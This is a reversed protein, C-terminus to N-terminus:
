LKDVFEKIKIAIECKPPCYKKFKFSEADKICSLINKLDRCWILYKEESLAKLIEEQHTDTRDLNAASIIKKGKKLLEYTTGAGGHAIIFKAKDYFEDLKDKYRFYECNKPMYEGNGIQMIIKLNIEPAAEDIAKILEDFKGTGVTVFIIKEYKSKM